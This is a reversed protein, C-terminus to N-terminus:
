KLDCPRGIIKLCTQCAVRKANPQSTDDPDIDEAKRKKCSDQGLLSMVRTKIILEIDEPSSDNSLYKTVDNTIARSMEDANIKPAVSETGPSQYTISDLNHPDEMQGSGQSVSQVNKVSGYVLDHAPVRTDRSLTPLCPQHLEGQRLEESGHHASSEEISQLTQVNPRRVDRNRNGATRANSPNISRAAEAGPSKWLVMDEEHLPKM